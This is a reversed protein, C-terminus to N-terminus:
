RQLADQLKKEVTSLPKGPAVYVALVMEDTLTLVYSKQPGIISARQFAGLGLAEGAQTLSVVSFSHVAGAAEGDISGTVELLAGNADSLVVAQVGPIDAIQNLDM